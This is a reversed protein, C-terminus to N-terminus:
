AARGGDAPGSKTQCLRELHVHHLPDHPPRPLLLAARLVVGQAQHVQAAQEGLQAVRRAVHGLLLLLLLEVHHQGYKVPHTVAPARPAWRRLWQDPGRPVVSWLKHQM